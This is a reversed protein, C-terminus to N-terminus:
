VRNINLEDKIESTKSHQITKNLHQKERSQCAELSIGCDEFQTKSQAFSFSFLSLLCIAFLPKFKKM